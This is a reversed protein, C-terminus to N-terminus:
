QLKSRHSLNNACQNAYLQACKEAWPQTCMGPALLARREAAPGNVMAIALLVVAITPPLTAAALIEAAMHQPRSSRVPDVMANLVTTFYQEEWAATLLIAALLM